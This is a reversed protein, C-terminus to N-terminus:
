VDAHDLPTVKVWGISVGRVQLERPSYRNNELRIWDISVTGATRSLGSRGTAGERRRGAATVDDYQACRRRYDDGELEM